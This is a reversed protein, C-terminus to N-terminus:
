VGETFFMGLIFFFHFLFLFVGIGLSIFCLYKAVAAAELALTYERKHFLARSKSAFIIAAVGLPIYCFLTVLISYMLYDPVDYPAAEEPFVQVEEARKEIEVPSDLPAGCFKCVAKEPKNERGCYPCKM